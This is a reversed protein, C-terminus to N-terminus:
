REVGFTMIEYPKINFIAKSGSCKIRMNVEELLNLTYINKYKFNLNLICNKLHNKGPNYIRIIYLNDKKESRKFASLQLEKSVKILNKHNINTNSQSIILPIHNISEEELVKGTIYNGFHSFISYKFEIERNCQAEPTEILSHSKVVSLKGISRILTVSFGNGDKNLEYESIGNGFFALGTKKNSHDIFNYLPQVFACNKGEPRTRSIVGFPTDAYIHKENLNTPFYLKLKKNTAKNNIKSEFDIRKKNRLCFVKLECDFYINTTELRFVKRFSNEELVSVKWKLKLPSKKKGEIFRYEDGIDNELVFSHLKKYLNKGEKDNLDLTGDANINLKYFKNEFSNKNKSVRNTKKYNGRTIKKLKLTAISFPEINADILLKIRQVAQLVPVENRSWTQKEINKDELVIFNIKKNGQMLSFNKVIKKSKIPSAGQHVAMPGLPIEVETEIVESRKYNSLNIIQLYEKEKECFNSDDFGTNTKLFLNNQLRDVLQNVKLFRVEMERHVEDTSCGCISDHAHNQILLKWAYKIQDFPYNIDKILSLYCSLPEIIKELKAQCKYNELKLYVRSSLTSALIFYESDDRLESFRIPVESGALSKKISQIANYLNSHKITIKKSKYSSIIKLIDKQVFLHDCGNMLILENSNTTKKQRKLISEFYKNIAKKNSPIRQANNYWNTLVITFLNSGDIGYWYHEAKGDQIGRALIADKIKFQNLIQPLQAIHGFQDPLYGVKMLSGFEKSKEIGYFLNRITSEGSSLFQDSLVYWPGTVINGLKIYKKLLNIKHPKIELYDELLLTYGDLHFIFNKNQELINLLDDILDVLEARFTEFPLYWERDWHTHSIIHFVIKSM